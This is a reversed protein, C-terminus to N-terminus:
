RNFRLDGLSLEIHTGSGGLRGCMDLEKEDPHLRSRGKDGGGGFTLERNHAVLASAVRNYASAHTLKFRIRQQQGRNGRRVNRIIRPFKIMAAHIQISPEM